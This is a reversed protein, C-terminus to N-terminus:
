NSTRNSCRGRIIGNTLVAEMKKIDRKRKGCTALCGSHVPGVKLAAAQALHLFLALHTSIVIGLPEGGVNSGEYIINM